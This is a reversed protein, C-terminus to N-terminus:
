PTPVATPLFTVVGVQNFALDVKQIEGLRGSLHKLLEFCREGQESLSVRSDKGAGFIIPFPLGEFSVAFDGQGQFELGTIARKVRKELV